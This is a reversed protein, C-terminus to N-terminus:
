KLIDVRYYWYYQKLNISTEPNRIAARIGFLGQSLSQISEQSLLQKSIDIGNIIVQKLLNEEINHHVIIEYEGERIKFPLDSDPTERNVKYGKDGDGVRYILRGMTTPNDGDIGIGIFTSNFETTGSPEALILIGAEQAGSYMKSGEGMYLSVGTSYRVIGKQPSLQQQLIGIISKNHNHGSIKISTQSLEFQVNDPMTPNLNFKQWKKDKPVGSNVDSSNDRNFLDRFYLSNQRIQDPVREIKLSNLRLNHFGPDVNRTLKQRWNNAYLHGKRLWSKWGRYWAGDYSWTWGGYSPDGVVIRLHNDNVEVIETGEVLQNGKVIIPPGYNAGAFVAGHSRCKFTRQDILPLPSGPNVSACSVRYWGNPLDIRFVLLQNEKHTGQMNALEPRGIEEPTSMTGDHLIIEAKASRDRGNGALNILWGYGRKPNYIEGDYEDWGEPNPTRRNSKVVFNIKKKISLEQNHSIDNTFRKQATFVPALLIIKAAVSNSIILFLISIASLFKIRKLM